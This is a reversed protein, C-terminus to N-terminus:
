ITPTSVFRKPISLLYFFGMLYIIFSFVNRVTDMYDIGSGPQLFGFDYELGNSNLHIVGEPEELDYDTFNASFIIDTYAFPVKENLRDIRDQYELDNTSFRILESFWQTLICSFEFDGCAKTVFADGGDTIDIPPFSTFGPESPDITQYNYVEEGDDTCQYTVNYENVGGNDYPLLVDSAQWDSVTPSFFQGLYVSSGLSDSLEITTTQPNTADLEITSVSSDFYSGGGDKTVSHNVIVRCLATESTFDTDGELEVRAWGLVENIESFTVFVTPFYEQDPDPLPDPPPGVDEVCVSYQIADLKYVGGFQNNVSVVPQFEDLYTSIDSVVYTYSDPVVDMNAVPSIASGNGYSIRVADSTSDYSSFLRYKIYDNTATDVLERFEDVTCAYASDTMACWARNATTEPFADTFSGDVAEIFSSYFGGTMWTYHGNLSAWDTCTNPDEPEPLPSPSPSPTPSPSASAGDTVLFNDIIKPYSGTESAGLGYVYSSTHGTITASDISVDDIYYTLTTGIVCVKHNHMVGGGAWGTGSIVTSFSPADYTVYTGNAFVQTYFNDLNPNAPNARALLLVFNSGSSNGFTIDASVCQDVSSTGDYYYKTTAASSTNNVANSNIRFNAGEFQTWNADHTQLTTSDSDTFADSFLTAANVSSSVSFFTLLALTFIFFQKM